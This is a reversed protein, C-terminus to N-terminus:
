QFKKAGPEAQLSLRFGGTSVGTGPTPPNQTNHFTCGEACGLTKETRPTKEEGEPCSMSVFLVRKTNLLPISYASACLTRDLCLEPLGWGSKQAM